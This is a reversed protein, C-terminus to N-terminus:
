FDISAVDMCAQRALERAEVRDHVVKKVNSEIRKRIESDKPIPLILDYIRNGLSDIIDQTFRKSKIQKQVPDASLIALLLYPSIIKPDIVRIKYLHSQYIIKTDYKSIIACTGILYTGDKVMLIDGEQIDQKNSFTKYFDESVGHKPDIKIEWSSIDSTRVFPIEGTGYALKGVEHGTKIEIVGRKVLDGFKVIEHTDKISKLSNKIDPNYYRPSLINNDIDASSIIYGLNGQDFKKKNTYKNYNDLILPLDDQEISRGRSDHGCWKAEAMFINSKTNPTKTKRFLILCAKTHTGGKGSTKFFDEPMGLIALIDGHKRLYQVVYSYSRSTILSEPVVIGLRGDDKLLKLCREVFLVQPPVNSLLRDSKIYENKEPSLKWDFGLDFERQVEKTTSVINKGFPPNTLVIDYYGKSHLKLSEKKENIWALSDGCTIDCQSLSMMAIRTAALKALYSDKEIGHINSVANKISVGNNVLYQFASSLFGGAGAAPDIIKEGKQPKILSILLEVGNQPTFFQGEEERVGTSVFVEYLDGFPDRNFNEFDIRSLETHVFLISVPDLQIEEESNFVHPLKEKLESFVERYKKSLLLADNTEDIKKLHTAIYHKCFFCKVVEELLARDRTAGILRGALYNRIQKYIEKHSQETLFTTQYGESKM